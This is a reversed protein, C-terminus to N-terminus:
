KSFKASVRTSPQILKVCDTRKGSDDACSLVDNLLIRSIRDCTLGVIDFLKVSTKDARLPAADLSLRRAIVGNTDFLVLDLQFENFNTQSPNEFLMYARCANPQDELKNLEIAITGAGAAQAQAQGPLVAAGLALGLIAATSLFKGITPM